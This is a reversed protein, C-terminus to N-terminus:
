SWGLYATHLAADRGTEYCHAFRARLEKGFWSTDGTLVFSWTNRFEETEVALGDPLAVQGRLLM